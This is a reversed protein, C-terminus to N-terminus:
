LDRGHWVVMVFMEKVVIRLMRDEEVCLSCCPVMLLRGGVTSWLLVVVMLMTKGDVVALKVLLSVVDSYGEGHLFYFM